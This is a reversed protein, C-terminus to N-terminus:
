GWSRKIFSHFNPSQLIIPWHKFDWFIFNTIFFWITIFFDIVWIQILLLIFLLHFLLLIFFSLFLLFFFIILMNSIVSFINFLLLKLPYHFKQHPLLMIFWRKIMIRNILLTIFIFWHISIIIQFFFYFFILLFILFFKSFLRIILFNNVLIKSIRLLYYLGTIINIEPLM